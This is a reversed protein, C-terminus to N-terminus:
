CKAATTARPRRSGSRLEWCTPSGGDSLCRSGQGSLIESPGFKTRMFSQQATMENSAFGRKITMGAASIRTESKGDSLVITTATISDFKATLHAKEQAGTERGIWFALLVFTLPWYKM